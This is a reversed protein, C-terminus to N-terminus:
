PVSHLLFVPVDNFFVNKMINLEKGFVCKPPKPNGLFGNVDKRNWVEMIGSGFLTRSVKVKM